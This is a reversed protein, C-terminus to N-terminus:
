CDCLLNVVSVCCMVCLVCVYLGNVCRCMM